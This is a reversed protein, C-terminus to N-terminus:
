KAAQLLAQGLADLYGLGQTSPVLYQARRNERQFKTIVYGQTKLSEIKRHMTAPSAIDSLAM